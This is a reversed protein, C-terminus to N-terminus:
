NSIFRVSVDFTSASMSLELIQKQSYSRSAPSGRTVSAVVTTSGFNQVLVLDTFRNTSANQDRGTVVALGAQPFPIEDDDVIKVDSTSVEKKHISNSATANAFKQHVLEDGPTLPRTDETGTNKTEGSVDLDQINADIRQSNTGLTGAQGSTQGSASGIGLSALAGAGIGSGAIAALQRRSLMFRDEAIKGTDMQEAIQKPDIQAALKSYDIEDQTM